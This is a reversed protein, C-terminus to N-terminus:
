KFLCVFCLALASIVSLSFALILALSFEVLDQPSILYCIGFFGMVLAFSLLVALIGTYLQLKHQAKLAQRIVMVYPLFAILGAIFGLVLKLM